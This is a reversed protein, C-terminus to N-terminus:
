VSGYRYYVVRWQEEEDCVRKKRARIFQVPKLERDKLRVKARPISLVRGGGDLRRYKSPASIELDEYPFTRKLSM